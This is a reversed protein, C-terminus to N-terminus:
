QLGALRQSRLAQAASDIIQMNTRAAKLTAVDLSLGRSPPTTRMLAAHRPPMRAVMHRVVGAPPVAGNADPASVVKVTDTGDPCVEDTLTVHGTPTTCKNIDAGAFASSAFVMSALFITRTIAQSNM